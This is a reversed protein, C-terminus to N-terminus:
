KEESREIGLSKLRSILDDIVTITMKKDKIQHYGYDSALTKFGDEAWDAVASISQSAPRLPFMQQATREAVMMGFSKAVNDVTDNFLEWSTDKEMWYDLEQQYPDLKEVIDKIENFSKIAINAIKKRLINDKQLLTYKPGNRFPLISKIFDPDDSAADPTAHKKSKDVDKSGYDVAFKPSEGKSSDWKPAEPKKKAWAPHYGSGPGENVPPEDIYSKNAVNKNKIFVEFLSPLKM